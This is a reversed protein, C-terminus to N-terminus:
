VIRRASTSNAFDGHVVQAALGGFDAEAADIQHIFLVPGGADLLVAQHGGHTVPAPVM